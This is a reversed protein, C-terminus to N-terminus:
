TCDQPIHSWTTRDTSLYISPHISLYICPHISLDISRHISPYIFLYM